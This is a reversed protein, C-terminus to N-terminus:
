DQKIFYQEPYTYGISRVADMVAKEPFNRFNNKVLFIYPRRGGGAGIIWLNKAHLEMIAKGLKIREKPDPTSKYAEWLEIVKMADGEPKEGAKGESAYWRAWESAWATWGTMTFASPGVLLPHTSFGQTVVDFENANVRTNWLTAEVTQVETKVGVKEWYDKVMEAVDIWELPHRALITISLPKGDPRLRWKKNADWKLGMEDLIRGAEKPDYQAYARAFKEDYFPSEPTITPTCPECIGLYVIENIAERDIALSLARRFRVDRFIKRLVPDKHTQNLMMTPEGPYTGPWTIVRYGGKKANEMYLTYDGLRHGVEQMEAEGSMAKLMALDWNQVYDMSIRDIYPLQNGATDVKWYYPNREATVKNAGWANKLQWAFITPREPTTFMDNKAMFLQWWGQFGEAKAKESLKEVSVYNPHFQKLYHKPAFIVGYTALNELILPYPKAFELKVAYDNLKEIKMVEGGLIMWSPIQPTIEKNLIIDRYWFAIDDATFPQGDSWKVGKRLRLVLSKADRSFEWSEALNPEVSVGDLGWRVIPDYVLMNFVITGIGAGIHYRRWVGGYQGVEEVPKVVAPKEPLRKEVPPLKGQKVLESLMPAERYGQGALATSPTLAFILGIALIIAMSSRKFGMM